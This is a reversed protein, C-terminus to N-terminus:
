LQVFVDLIACVLLANESAGELQNLFGLKRLCCRSLVAFRRLFVEDEKNLSQHGYRPIQSLFQFDRPQIKFTRKLIHTLLQYLLTPNLKCCLNGLIKFLM